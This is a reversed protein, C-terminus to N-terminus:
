IRGEFFIRFESIITVWNHYLRTLKENLEQLNSYAEEEINAAYITKLDATLEKRDKCSVYSM